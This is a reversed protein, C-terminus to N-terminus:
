VIIFVNFLISILIHRSNRLIRLNLISSNKATINDSSALKMDAHVPIYDVSDGGELSAHSSEFLLGLFKVIQALCYTRKYYYELSFKDRRGLHILFKTTSSGVVTPTESIISEVVTHALFHLCQLWRNRLFSCLGSSSTEFM